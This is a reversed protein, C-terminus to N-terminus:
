FTPRSASEEGMFHVRLEQSGSQFTQRLGRMALSIVSDGKTGADNRLVITHGYNQVANGNVAWDYRLTPTDSTENSFFFPEASISFEKRNLTIDTGFPRNYWVGLLPHKEYFLIFPQSLSVDIRTEASVTDNISSARVKVNASEYPKPGLFSFSNKGYGSAESVNTGDKEWVYVLSGASLANQGGTNDPIAVARVNAQASLLAKGRYFPPTYTDAQWLITLGVPNWSLEKVISEGTNTVISIALRTTKGSPGNQFSFTKKGVSREVTKGDLSWSITAKNLDTLYSEVSVTVKESPGPNKPTTKIDLYDRISNTRIDAASPIKKMQDSLFNQLLRASEAHAKERAIDIPDPQDATTTAVTQAFSFLPLIFFLILAFFGLPHM